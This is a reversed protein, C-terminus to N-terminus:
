WGQLCLTRALMVGEKAYHYADEVLGHLCHLHGVTRLAELRLLLIRWALGNCTLHFGSGAEDAVEQVSYREALKMLLKVADM